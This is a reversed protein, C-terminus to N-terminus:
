YFEATDIANRVPAGRAIRELNECFLAVIRENERASLAATHPSFVVNEMTWLPDNPPLPEPEFVDLVAGFLRGDALMATLAPQDVVAGRGVNCFIARPPLAALAAADVLGRTRETLPLTVVAADARAFVDRMESLAVTEDALSHSTATRVIAVVRMGFARARVAVASGIGGMGLIALTSGELEGQAAHTWARQARLRALRAADKRLALLGYFVFEALMGGHVGAASAFAIRQLADEGLRAARLVAGAGAATGQVFRLGTALTVARALGAATDGPFGFLANARALSEDFREEGAASRAFDPEGAHDCPYRTPPLLDPEYIVDRVAPVARIRDVLEAELPTAITVIM